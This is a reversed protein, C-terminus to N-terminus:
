EIPLYIETLFDNPNTLPSYNLYKEIIPLDRLKIDSNLVWQGFISKYLEWLREYPGKYRFVAYKGGKVIKSEINATQIAPKNTAICLESSCNKFDQAYPDDYYITFIDPKWGVLNNQIAYNLFGEWAKNINEGGYEGFFMTYIITKDKLTIIKPKHDSVLKGSDNFKYDVHTNLVIQQDSKFDHPSLGFEKSFAKSFASSNNYGIRMAIESLPEESYRILRVATDLRVRNIYGGLPENLYAKFIRHFHFFSIGFKMSLSKVNLDEDLHNDIYNLVESVKQQYYSKTEQLM